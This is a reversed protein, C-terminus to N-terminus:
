VGNLIDKGHELAAHDADILMAALSVQMAVKGLEIEAVIAASGELDGVALAVILLAGMAAFMTTRVLWEEPDVVSTLWAYGVWAWWLVGLVLLGKALGEWTPQAAMLATCQTLALVFM